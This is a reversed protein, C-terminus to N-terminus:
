PQPVVIYGAGGDTVTPVDGDWAQVWVLYEYLKVAEEATLGLSDVYQQIAEATAAKELKLADAEAQAKVLLAEAEKQAKYLAADAELEAVKKAAQAETEKKAAENVAKQAEQEAAVKDEVIKEFEDTFDINTLVVNTIDVYYDAGIAEEIRATVDASVVNRTAIIGMASKESIVSKLREISVTEIRSELKALDGYQTAIDIIKDQQIKYQIVVEIDLTQGDSSYAPTTITVQQVKTDYKEYRHSLWGQYYLGPGKSGEIVGYHRVVAVEGTKVQHISGPIIVLVVLFVISLATAIIGQVPHDGDYFSISLWVIGGILLLILVVFLVIKIAM